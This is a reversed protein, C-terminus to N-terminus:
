VGSLLSRSERARVAVVWCIPASGDQSASERGQVGLLEEPPLAAAWTCRTAQLQPELAAPALVATLFKESLCNDAKCVLALCPEGSPQSKFATCM